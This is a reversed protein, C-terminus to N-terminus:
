AWVESCRLKLKPKYFDKSRYLINPRTEKSNSMSILVYIKVDQNAEKHQTQLYSTNESSQFWIYVKWSLLNIRAWTVCRTTHLSYARDWGGQTNQDGHGRILVSLSREMEVGQKTGLFILLLSFSAKACGQLNLTLNILAFYQCLDILLRLSLFYHIWDVALHREWSPIRFNCLLEMDKWHWECNKGGELEGQYPGEGQKPRTWAAEGAWHGCAPSLQSLASSWTLRSM